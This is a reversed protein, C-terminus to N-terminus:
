ALLWSIERTLLGACLVVVGAAAAAVDLLRFNRRTATVKTEM